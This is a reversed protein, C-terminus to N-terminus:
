RLAVMTSLMDRFLLEVKEVRSHELEKVRLAEKEILHTWRAPLSKGLHAAARQLRRGGVVKTGAPNTRVFIIGESASVMNGRDDSGTDYV